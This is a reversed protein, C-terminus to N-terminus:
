STNELVLVYYQTNNAFTLPTNYTDYSVTFTQSAGSSAIGIICSEKVVTAFGTSPTFYSSQGVTTGGLNINITSVGSTLGGVTYNASFGVFVYCTKGSTLGTITTTYITVIGAATDWAPDCNGTNFHAIRLGSTTTISSWIPPANGQSTLVEGLTGSSGSLKIEGNVDLETNSVLTPATVSTTLSISPKLSINGTAGSVSVSCNGDPSDLISIGGGGGGGIAAALDSLIEPNYLISSISM